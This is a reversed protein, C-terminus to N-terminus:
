NVNVVEPRLRKDEDTDGKLPNQFAGPIISCWIIVWKSDWLIYVIAEDYFFWLM